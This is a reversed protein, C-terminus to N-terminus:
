STYTELNTYAGCKSVLDETEVTSIKQAFNVLANRISPGAAGFKKLVLIRKWGDTDLGSPGSNDRNM